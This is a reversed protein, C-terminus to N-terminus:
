AGSELSPVATWTQDRLQISRGAFDTPHLRELIWSLKQLIDTRNPQRLAIVIM